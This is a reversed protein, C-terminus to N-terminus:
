PKLEGKLYEAMARCLDRGFARASDGTVIKGSSNAYPIEITTAISVGPLSEAWRGFSKAEKLTNWSKGFPLNDKESFVLTGQQVKELLQSLRGVRFWNGENASGVFHLVEHEHGRIGPCHMDMAIRLKGGSWEPLLKKLAAVSPYLSDGLYDRNHDHPKRNKGQDGEEVGDKDMFPVILFEVNERLWKGTVDDALIQEIMGEMQYDAMMECAHHRATLAVRHAPNGDLRGVHLLETDRGKQSKCLVDAKLASNGSHKALFEKLNKEVYPIGMAFYVENAEADFTYSFRKGKVNERGLWTWEKGDRSVAPGRVGIVDSGTFNFTLTKGAAGHVRFSWYFWDGETDRLDQKIFFTDGDHKEIQINGGPFTCDLAPEAAHASSLALVALLLFFTRLM